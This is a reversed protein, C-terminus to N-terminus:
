LLGKLVLNSNSHSLAFDRREQLIVVVDNVDLPLANARVSLSYSNFLRCFQMTTCVFLKTQWCRAHKFLAKTKVRMEVARVRSSSSVFIAEVERWPINEFNGIGPLELSLGSSGAQILPSTSRLLRLRESVMNHFLQYFVGLSGCLMILHGVVTNTGPDRGLAAFLQLLTMVCGTVLFASLPISILLKLNEFRIQESRVPYIRIPKSFDAIDTGHAPDNADCALQLHHDDPM